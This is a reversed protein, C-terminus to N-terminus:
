EQADSLPVHLGRLKEILITSVKGDDDVQELRVALYHLKTSCWVTTKRHSGPKQRQLKLTRLKGVPTDIVEEGLLTIDYTKIIGGAVIQYSLNRKGAQLDQMLVYQYLLEDFINPRLPLQWPTDGNTGRIERTVWDYELSVNRVKNWRSQHYQYASPHIEHGAYTWRTEEFVRVKYFLAALGTTQSLSQFIYEGNDAAALTRTMEGVKVGHRQLAYTAEFPQPPPDSALALSVAM